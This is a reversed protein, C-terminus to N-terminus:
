SIAKSFMAGVELVEADNRQFVRGAQADEVIKRVREICRRKVEPPVWFPYPLREFDKGQINKTHNIVNKLLALCLPSLTWGLVFYLEDPDVGERLFACPAGSDLICGPPLYRANLTQSILQWTLGERGFFKQGGVGHLYWPGNKKFTLVADGNDKWYVAHTPPAYVLASCAKNYVRYDPHPLAIELPTERPSAQVTRRTAGLCVQAAIQARKQPSLLGLRARQVESELTVPKDWFTFVFPECITGNAIERVFRANDGITMGSTAIMFDGLKPGAFYPAYEDTIQWSHNGTLAIQQRSVTKGDLTLVPAPRTKAFDLVVMAYQTEESFEDLRTVAPSGSELLLRRLGQMTNITLFTDSCIFRLHGSPKLFDLCKVIFFSYTEKKIKLGGRWGLEKDLKDQIEPAITGGFPPNGVIVDFQMPFATGFFDACVLNHRAPCYGWRRQIRELCQTYLAPDIEIGYVNRTLIQDLRESVPGDYLPLFKDILPLLFSGTGFSPELVTSNRSLPMPMPLEVLREAVALPTLFQGLQRKKDRQTKAQSM